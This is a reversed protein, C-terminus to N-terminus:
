QKINHIIYGVDGANRGEFKIKTEYEGHNIRRVENLRPMETNKIETNIVGESTEVFVNLQDNIGLIISNFANKRAFIDLDHINKM